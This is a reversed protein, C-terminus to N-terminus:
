AAAAASVAANFAEALRTKAEPEKQDDNMAVGFYFQAKMRPVLLHPSNPLSTVLGGGHFSAGAGIRDPLTAAAMMTMPGGMCYGAVGVKAKRNTVKLGDLYAVYASADREVNGPAFLTGRFVNLKARDTPNNFDFPGDIITAKKGEFSLRKGYSSAKLGGGDVMIGAAILEDNFKGMEIFMSPDDPLVGTESEATAKVVVMVRM